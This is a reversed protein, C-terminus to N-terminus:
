ILDASNSRHPYSGGRVYGTGGGWPCGKAHALVMKGCKWRQTSAGVGKGGSEM